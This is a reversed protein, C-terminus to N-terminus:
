KLNCGRSHLGRIGNNDDPLDLEVEGGLFFGDKPRTTHQQKKAGEVGDDGEGIEGLGGRSSSVVPNNQDLLKIRVGGQSSM